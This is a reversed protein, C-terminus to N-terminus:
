PQRLADGSGAPFGVYTGQAALEVKLAARRDRIRGTREEDTLGPDAEIALSDIQCREMAEERSFLLAAADPGFARRRAEWRYAIRESRNM